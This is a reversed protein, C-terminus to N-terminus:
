SNRNPVWLSRKRTVGPRAPSCYYVALSARVTEVPSVSHYATDSGEWVIATNKQPAFEHVVQSVDDNWFQLNGGKADNLYVVCNVRRELWPSKPHIAFDLHTDLKGGADMVHLGAGWLFPDPIMDRICFMAALKQTFSPSMLFALAAVFPQPLVALDCCTRKNTEFASSYKVWHPWDMAPISGPLTPLVDNLRQM